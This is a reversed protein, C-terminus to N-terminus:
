QTLTHTSKYDTILTKYRNEPKMFTLIEVTFGIETLTQNLAQCNKKPVSIYCFAYEPYSGFVNGGFMAVIEPISKNALNSPITANWFEPISSINEFVKTWAEPHYVFKEYAIEPPTVELSISESKTHTVQYLLLFTVTLIILVTSLVIIIKRPM